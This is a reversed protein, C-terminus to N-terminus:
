KKKEFMDYKILRGNFKVDLFWLSVFIIVVILNVWKVIKVFLKLYLIIM